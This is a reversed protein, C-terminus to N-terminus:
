GSRTRRTRRRPTLRGPPLRHAGLDLRRSAAQRCQSHSGRARGVKTLPCIQRSRLNGSVPQDITTTGLDAPNPNASASAASQGVVTLPKVGGAGVERSVCRAATRLREATTALSHREAACADSCDNRLCAITAASLASADMSAAAAADVAADPLTDDADEDALALPM